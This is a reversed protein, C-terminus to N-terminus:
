IFRQYISSLKPISNKLLVIKTIRTQVDRKLLLFYSEHKESNPKFWNSNIIMLCGEWDNLSLNDNKSMTKMIADVECIIDFYLLICKTIMDGVLLINIMSVERRSNIIIPYFSYYKGVSWKSRWIRGWDIRHDM